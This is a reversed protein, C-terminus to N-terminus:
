PSYIFNFERVLNPTTTAAEANSNDAHPPPPVEASPDPVGAFPPVM